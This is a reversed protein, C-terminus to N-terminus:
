WGLKSPTVERGVRCVHPWGFHTPFLLSRNETARELLALRTARAPELLDCFASNLDPRAIQIPQHFVDGTFIAERRQEHLVVVGHGITHGPAAEFRM